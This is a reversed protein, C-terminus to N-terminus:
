FKEATTFVLTDEGFHQRSQGIGDKYYRQVMKLSIPLEQLKKNFADSAKVPKQTAILWVKETGFPPTIQLHFDASFSPFPIFDGTLVHNKPYLTSPILQFVKGEANEYYMYLWADDSLSILFSLEDDQAFQQDEGLFSTLDVHIGSPDNMQQKLSSGCSVIDSLIATLLIAKVFFM